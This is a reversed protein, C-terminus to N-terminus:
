FLIQCGAVVTFYYKGDKIGIPIKTVSPKNGSFTKIKLMGLYPITYRLNLDEADNDPEVEFTTKSLDVGLLQDIIDLHYLQSPNANELYFLAKMADKDKEKIALKIADIFRKEAEPLRDKSSLQIPYTEKQTQSEQHKLCEEDYIPSGEIRDQATRVESFLILFFPLIFYLLKRM